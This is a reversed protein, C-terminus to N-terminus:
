GYSAGGRSILKLHPLITRGLLNRLNIANQDSSTALYKFQAISQCLFMMRTHKNTM